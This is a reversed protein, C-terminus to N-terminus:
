FKGVLGAGAAGFAGGRGAPVFGFTEGKSSKSVSRPIRRNKNYLLFRVFPMM